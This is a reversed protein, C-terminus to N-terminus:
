DWFKNFDYTVIGGMTLSSGPPPDHQYIQVVVDPQYPTKLILKFAPNRAPASPYHNEVFVDTDINHGYEFSSVFKGPASRAVRINRTFWLLGGLPSAYSFPSPTGNVTVIGAVTM